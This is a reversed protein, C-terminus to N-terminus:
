SRTSQSFLFPFSALTLRRLSVFSVDSASSLLRRGGGLVGKEGCLRREEGEGNREERLDGPSSSSCFVAELRLFSLFSSSPPFGIRRRKEGRRRERRTSNSPIQPPFFNGKRRRRRPSFTAAAASLLLLLHCVFAEASPPSLSFKKMQLTKWGNERERPQLFSFSKKGHNNLSERKERRQREQHRSPSKLLCPSFCNEKGRGERERRRRHRRRRAFFLQRSTTPRQPCFLHLSPFSTRKKERSTTTKTSM